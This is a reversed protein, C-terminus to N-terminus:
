RRGDMADVALLAFIHKAGTNVKTYGICRRFLECLRLLQRSDMGCAERRGSLMDAALELARNLFQETEAGSLERSFCFACLEKRSGSAVARLYELAEKTFEEEGGREGAVTIEVCRSRVTPLLLAPNAACLLIRVHEPPEELLKLAANQAEPNMKDAEDIIYVKREAEHPLVLADSVLWRVQDVVINKRLRGKDDPERRIYIVDPHIDERVKRCSRCMGCAAGGTICLAAAALERAKGLAAERDSASIICAHHVGKYAANAM